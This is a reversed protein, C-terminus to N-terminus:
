VFLYMTLMCLIICSSIQRAGILRLPAELPLVYFYFRNLHLTPILAVYRRSYGRFMTFEVAPRKM